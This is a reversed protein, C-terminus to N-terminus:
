TTLAESFVFGADRRAHAERGKTAFLKALRFYTAQVLAMIPLNHADKLVSNVCEVLNTTMHEYRHGGDFARSGM